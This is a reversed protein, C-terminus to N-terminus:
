LFIVPYHIPDYECFGDDLFQQIENVGLRFWEKFHRRKALALWDHLSEEKQFSGPAIALVKPDRLYTRYSSARKKWNTSFGVKIIDQHFWDQLFYLYGDYSNLASSPPFYVSLPDVPMSDRHLNLKVRPLHGYAKSYDEDARKVIAEFEPAIM